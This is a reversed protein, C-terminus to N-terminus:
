VISKLEHFKIPECSNYKNKANTFDHLLINRQIRSRYYVSLEDEFHTM